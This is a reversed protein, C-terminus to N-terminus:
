VDLCRKLNPVQVGGVDGSFAKNPTGFECWVEGPIVPHNPIDSNVGVWRWVGGFLSCLLFLILFCCAERKWGLCGFVLASFTSKSGGPVLFFIDFDSGM